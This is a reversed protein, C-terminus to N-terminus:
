NGSPRVDPRVIAPGFRELLTAERAALEAVSRLRAVATPEELLAQLEMVPLRLESAIAYSCGIPDPPLTAPSSGAAERYRAFASLVATMAEAAGDGEHEPLSTTQAEPYPDDSLRQDIRFRTTGRVIMAYRGDDFRALEEIRALCGVTHTEAHVAVEAGARIAVVGFTRDGDLVRAMM